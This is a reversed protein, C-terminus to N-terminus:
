RKKNLISVFHKCLPWSVNKSSYKCSDNGTLLVLVFSYDSYWGVNLKMWGRSENLIVRNPYKNKSVKIVLSSATVNPGIGIQLKSYSRMYFSIFTIIIHRDGPAWILWECELGKPYTSPSPFSINSNSKLEIHKQRCPDTVYRFFSSDHYLKKTNAYGAVYVVCIFLEM